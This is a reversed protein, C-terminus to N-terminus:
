PRAELKKVEQVFDTAEQFRRYVSAFRVYAVDDITRLGAMVLKGIVESPVEREYKDTIENVIKEVLDEIVKPSIPRKQCAKKLGSLLKEKSFEERRKDHKIVMLGAQEIEEYTTFRFGCAVCERRRRITAGERSARSDIVKDDQCGCKPCRM